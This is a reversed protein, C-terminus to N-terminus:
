TPAQTRGPRGHRADKAELMARDADRILTPLDRRRYTTGVGISATMPISADGIQYPETNALRDIRGRIREIVVPSGQAIVVFEDGGVRAVLDETRVAAMLRSGFQKLLEDGVAHGMQDNLEKFHDIDLYIATTEVDFSPPDGDGVLSLGRRNLLGTLHDHNAYETQALM